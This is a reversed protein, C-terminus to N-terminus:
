WVRRTSRQARCFARAEALDVRAYRGRRATDWVNRPAQFVTVYCSRGRNRGNEVRGRHPCDGCISRDAGSHIAEVPSVDRRLIWTQILAGTKTNTSASKLGTAIVQIPAGDIASEGEWLIAGNAM